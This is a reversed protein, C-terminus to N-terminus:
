ILVLNKYNGETEISDPSELIDEPDEELQKYKLGFYEMERLFDIENLLPDDECAYGFEEVQTRIADAIFPIFEASKPSDLDQCLIHAFYEPTLM